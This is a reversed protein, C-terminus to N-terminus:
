LGALYAGLMLAGFIAGLYLMRGVNLAMVLSLGRYSRQLVQM